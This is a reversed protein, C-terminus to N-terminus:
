PIYIRFLYGPAPPVRRARAHPRLGWQWGSAPPVHVARVQPWLGGRGVPPRPRAPREPERSSGGRAWQPGPVCAGSQCVAAVGRGVPPWPRAEQEPSLINKKTNRPIYIGFFTYLKSGKKSQVEDNKSTHFFM